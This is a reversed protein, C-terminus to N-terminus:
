GLRLLTGQAQAILLNARLQWMSDAATDAYGLSKNGSDLAPQLHELTLHARGIEHHLWANELADLCIKAKEEWTDIAQQLSSPPRQLLAFSLMAGAIKWKTCSSM